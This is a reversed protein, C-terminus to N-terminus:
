HVLNRQITKVIFHIHHLIYIENKHYYHGVSNFKKYPLMHEFQYHYHDSDSPYIINSRSLLLIFLFLARLIKGRASTIQAGTKTQLCPQPFSERPNLVYNRRTSPIIHIKDDDGNDKDGDADDDIAEEYYDYDHM